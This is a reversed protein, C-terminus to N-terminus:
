FLISISIQIDDPISDNWAIKSHTPNSALKRLRDFSYTLHIMENLESPVMRDQPTRTSRHHNIHRTSKSSLPQYSSLIQVMHTMLTRGKYDLDVGETRKCQVIVSIM